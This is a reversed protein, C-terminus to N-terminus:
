FLDSSPTKADVEKLATLFAEQILDQLGEVDAKDVCDPHIEIKLPEKEGNMTIKVLGGGASGVVQTNRLEEKMQAM